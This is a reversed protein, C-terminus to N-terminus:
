GPPPSVSGGLTQSPYVKIVGAAGGGGGGGLVDMHGTDGTLTTGASGDGGDGGNTNNSGGPAPTTPHQPDPDLGSDGSMMGGGEGGGGGNAILAGSITVSPADLGILGGSGAGGGGAHSQGGRGGAGSADVTGGISISSGAILYIAGGGGGGGGGQNGDNKGGSAGACGGRVVAVPVTAAGATGGTGGAGNVGTAGGGGVDAFSGGAGGGGGGNPGNSMSGAGATTCLMSNGGAGAATVFRSSSVDVFGDSNVALTTAAVLVLPRKGTALVAADIAISGAAIVCVSEAGTQPIVKTCSGDNDTDIITTSTIHDTNTPAVDFCVTLLGTGFCTAGGDIMPSGDPRGDVVTVPADINSGSGISADPAEGSRFSCGALALLAATRIMAVGTYMAGVLASVCRKGVIPCM